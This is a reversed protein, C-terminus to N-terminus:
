TGNEEESKIRWGRTIIGLGLGVHLVRASIRAEMKKGSGRYM